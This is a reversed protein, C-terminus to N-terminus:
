GIQLEGYVPCPPDVQVPSHVLGSLRHIEEQASVAVHVSGLGKEALAIFFRRVCAALDRQVGVRRRMAGHSFHLLAAFQRSSHSHSRALVQVIEDFLVVPPHFLPNSRHEAEFSEVVRRDSNTSDLQCLLDLLAFFPWNLVPLNPFRFNVMDSSQFAANAAQGDSVSVAAFGLRREAAQNSNAVLV